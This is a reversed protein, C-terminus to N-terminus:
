RKRGQLVTREVIRLSGQMGRESVIEEQPWGYLSGKGIGQGGFRFDDAWCDTLIRQQGQDFYVEGFLFDGSFNQTVMARLDDIGLEKGERPPWYFGGLQLRISRERDYRSRLGEGLAMGFTVTDSAVIRGKELLFRLSVSSGLDRGEGQQWNRIEQSGFEAILRMNQLATWMSIRDYLEHLFHEGRERLETKIVTEGAM